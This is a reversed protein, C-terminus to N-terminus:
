RPNVQIGGSSGGAGPGAGSGPGILIPAGGAGSGDLMADV